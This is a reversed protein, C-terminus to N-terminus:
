TASTAVDARFHAEDRGNVLTIHAVNQRMCTFKAANVAFDALFPDYGALYCGIKIVAIATEM